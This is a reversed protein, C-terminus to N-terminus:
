RHGTVQIPKGEYGGSTAAMPIGKAPASAISVAATDILSLRNRISVAETDLYDTRISVAATDIVLSDRRIPVAVTLLPSDIRTSM